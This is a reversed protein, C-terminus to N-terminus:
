VDIIPALNQTHSDTDYVDISASHELRVPKTSNIGFLLLDENPTKEAPKKSKSISPGKPIAKPIGGWTQWVDNNVTWMWVRGRDRHQNAQLALTCKDFARPRITGDDYVKWIVNMSLSDGADIKAIHVGGQNRCGGEEMSLAFDPYAKLRITGDQLFEWTQWEDNTISWMWVKGKDKNGGEEVSLAATAYRSDRLRILGDGLTKFMSDAKEDGPEMQAKNGCFRWSNGDSEYDHIWDCGPDAECMTQAWSLSGYKANSCKSSYLNNGVKPGPTWKKNLSCGQEDGSYQQDTKGCYRWNQDDCAYDQLWECGPDNLCAIQAWKRSAYKRSCVTYLANHVRPGLSFQVDLEEQGIDIGMDACQGITCRNQKLCHRTCCCCDDGAYKEPWAVAGTCQYGDQGIKMQKGRTSSM